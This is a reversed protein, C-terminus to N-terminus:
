DGFVNENLIIKYMKNEFCKGSVAVLSKGLKREKRGEKITMNQVEYVRIRGNRDNITEYGIDGQYSCSIDELLEGSIISIGRGDTKDSLRNGSDYLAPIWDGDNIKVEYINKLKVRQRGLYAILLYGIIVAVAIYIGNIEPLAYVVGGVIFTVILSLLYLRIGSAQAKNRSLIYNFVPIIVLASVAKYMWFEPLILLAIVQCISSGLTVAAIRKLHGSIYIKSLKCTLIYIVLNAFFCNLFYTDLYFAYINEVESGYIIRIIIDILPPINQCFMVVFINVFYLYLVQWHCTRYKDM